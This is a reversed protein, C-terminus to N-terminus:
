AARPLLLWTGLALFVGLGCVDTITTLIISSSQAPDFGLRKMVMPVLAGSSAAIILCIVMALGIVASLVMDGWYALVAGISLLAVPLSALLGIVAERSVAALVGLGRAEGTAIGRIVVAMSQAGTNGAQGAVVPMLVALATIRQLSAEFAGVVAAAVFATGLNIMLWPVRRKLAFPVPSDVREDAGAGVMRQVDETAEERIVDVVDDITVIGLLRNWPDVVPLAYYGYKAFLAAVEERDTESPVAVLNTIMIERLTQEGRALILDRLSLVGVLRRGEDVVYTYYIQESQSAVRRLEDIAASVSMQAPLATVEPSMIGAATEPDYRLLSLLISRDCEPLRGLIESRREDPLKSLLDTADDLSMYSVATALRASDMDEVVERVAADDSLHELAQAAAQPPLTELM